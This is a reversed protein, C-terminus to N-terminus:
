QSLSSAQNTNTTPIIVVVRINMKLITVEKNHLIHVEEMYVEQSKAWELVTKIIPITVEVKTNTIPTTYAKNLLTNDTEQM